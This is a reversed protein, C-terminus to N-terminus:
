ALSADMALAEHRLSDNLEASIPVIGGPAGDFQPTARLLARTYAHTPAHLVDAMRGREVVRGTNLVTVRDCISGVTALDHSIYLVATGSQTQLDRILKLVEHQVTVDLATTPEDAIILRPKPAFAMAILIRQRMGGSLQFPYQRLVRGPQRIHVAELMAEARALAARSGLREQLRLGAVMQSAITRVPNLANMPNQPIMTVDRGLRCAGVQRLDIGDFLIEGRRVQAGPPLVGLITRALFSKGAGSEGILGHVAGREIELSVDRLVLAPRPRAGVSVWLNRVDLLQVASV